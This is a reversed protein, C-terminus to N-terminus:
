PLKANSIFLSILNRQLLRQIHNVLIIVLIHSHEEIRRPARKRTHKSRNEGYERCQVRGNRMKSNFFGRNPRPKHLANKTENKEKKQKHIREISHRHSEQLMSDLYPTWPKGVNNMKFEVMRTRYWPERVSAESM